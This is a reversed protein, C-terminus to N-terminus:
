NVHVFGVQYGSVTKNTRVGDFSKPWLDLHLLKAHEYSIYQYLVDFFITKLLVM